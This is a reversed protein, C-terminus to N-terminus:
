LRTVQVGILVVQVVQSLHTNGYMGIRDVSSVSNKLLHRVTVKRYSQLAPRNEHATMEIDLGRYRVCGQRRSAMM